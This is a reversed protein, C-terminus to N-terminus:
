KKPKGNEDAGADDLMKQVENMADYLRGVVKRWKEEEAETSCFYSTTRELPSIPAANANPPTREVELLLSSNSGLNTRLWDLQHLAHVRPNYQYEFIESLYEDVKGKTLGEVYGVADRFTAHILQVVFKRDLRQQLMSLAHETHLFTQAEGDAKRLKTSPNQSDLFNRIRVVVAAAERFLPRVDDKAFPPTAWGNRFRIHDFFSMYADFVRDVQHADSSMSRRQIGMSLAREVGVSPSPASLGAAPKFSTTATACTSPASPTTVGEGEFEPEQPVIVAVNESKITSANFRHTCSLQHERPLLSVAATSVARRILLVRATSRM